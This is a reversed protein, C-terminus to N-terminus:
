LSIGSQSNYHMVKVTLLECVKQISLPHCRNNNCLIIKSIKILITQRNLDCLGDNSFDELSIHGIFILIYM